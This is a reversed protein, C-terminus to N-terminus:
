SIDKRKLTSCKGLATVLKEQTFPKGIFSRAGKQVCTTINEKTTDGSLMHVNAEPDLSKLTQLAKIGDEGGLHIDLFVMDPVIKEYNELMEHANQYSHVRGFNMLANSITTLVFDNDDIVFFVNEERETRIKANIPM